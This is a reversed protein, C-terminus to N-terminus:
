QLVITERAALKAAEGGNTRHFVEVSYSRRELNLLTANYAYLVRMADCASASDRPGVTLRLTSGDLEAVAGIQGCASSEYSGAVRLSNTQPTITVLQVATGVLASQFQIPIADPETTSGCALTFFIVAFRYPKSLM